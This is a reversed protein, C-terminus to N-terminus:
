KSGTVSAGKVTWVSSAKSASSFVQERLQTGGGKEGVLRADAGPFLAGKIIFYWENGEIREAKGDTVLRRLRVGGPAHVNTKLTQPL